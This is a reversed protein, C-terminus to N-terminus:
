LIEDFKNRRLLGQDAHEITSTVRYTKSFYVVVTADDQNRCGPHRSNWEDFSASEPPERIAVLSVGGLICCGNPM